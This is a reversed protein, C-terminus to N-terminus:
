DLMAGRESGECHSLGSPRAGGVIRRVPSLVPKANLCFFDSGSRVSSPSITAVSPRPLAIPVAQARRARRAASEKRRRLEGLEKEAEAAAIAGTTLIAGHSAEARPLPM